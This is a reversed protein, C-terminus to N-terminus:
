GGDSAPVQGSSKIIARCHYGLPSVIRVLLHSRQDNRNRGGDPQARLDRGPFRREDSVIIRM